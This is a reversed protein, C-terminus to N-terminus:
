VGEGDVQRRPQCAGGEIKGFSTSLKIDLSRFRDGGSNALTMFSIGPGYGDVFFWRMEKHDLRGSASCLNKSVEVRWQVLQSGAPFAPVSVEEKERFYSRSTTQQDALLPAANRRRAPPLVPERGDEEEDAEHDEEEESEEDDDDDDDDGDAPDDGGDSAINFQQAQSPPVGKKVVTMAM